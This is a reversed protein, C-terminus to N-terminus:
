TITVTAYCTASEICKETIKLKLSENWDCKFLKLYDFNNRFDYSREIEGLTQLLFFYNCSILKGLISLSHTRTM